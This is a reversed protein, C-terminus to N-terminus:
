ASTYTLHLVTSAYSASKISVQNTGNTVTINSATGIKNSRVAGASTVGVLVMCLNDAAGGIVFFVHRSLNDLDFVHTSGGAIDVIEGINAPSLGKVDGHFEVPFYEHDYGDEPNQGHLAVTKDTASIHVIRSGVASVTSSNTVETFYDAVTVTIDYAESIDAGTIAYTATGSYASPTIVAEDSDSESAWEIVISKDNRNSVDSINWSYSVNITSQTAADRETSASVSPSNYAVVNFTSTYSDTRGRSDTITLTYSNTGSTALLNTVAGNSTLTQGNITISVSAVTAGYAPSGSGSNFVGTVSIQSKNQVFAGFKANLGAVTEALTVSAITCKVSSPIALTITTQTTGFLTNDALYTDCYITCAASEADTLYEALTIPPTWNCSTTVNTAITGTQGAFAYRITHTYSADIRNVTITQQTGLTGDSATVTSGAAEWIAYVSVTESQNSTTYYNFYYTNGDGPTEREQRTFTANRYFTKSIKDGPQYKVSGGSTASYGLFRYGERTPVTSSINASVTFSSASSKRSVSVNAPLNGEGRHRITLVYTGSSYINQTINAM